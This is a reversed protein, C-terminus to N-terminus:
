CNPDIDGIHIEQREHDIASEVREDVNSGTRSTTSRRGSKRRSKRVRRAGRTRIPNTVKHNNLEAFASTLLKTVLHGHPSVDEDYHKAVKHNKMISNTQAQATTVATAEPQMRNSITQSTHTARMTVTLATSMSKTTPNNLVATMTSCKSQITPLLRHLIPRHRLIVLTCPPCM